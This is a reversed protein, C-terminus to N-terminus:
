RTFARGPVVCKCLFNLFGCIQQLQKVTIKRKSMVSNILVRAKEIKEMPICVVQNITDLLLGLFIVTVDGWATKELSVPFNIERCIELFSQILHDCMMKKLAAFLYDDLYNIPKKRGTRFKVLHAVSNSFHQFHTCSISSGFPLCRDIFFYWLGDKPSRAKMVLWCLDKLRM